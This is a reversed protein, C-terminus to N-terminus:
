TENRICFRRNFRSCIHICFMNYCKRKLYPKVFNKIALLCENTLEKDSEFKRLRQLVLPVAGEQVLEECYEDDDSLLALSRCAIIQFSLDDAFTKMGNFIFHHVEAEFLSGDSDGGSALIGVM